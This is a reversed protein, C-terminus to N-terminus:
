KPMRVEELIKLKGFIDPQIYIVPRSALLAKTKLNNDGTLIVSNTVKAIEIIMNDEEKGLEEITNPITLRNDFNLISIVNQYALKRLTEIENSVAKKKNPGLLSDSVNLIYNPIVVEFDKFFGLGVIRSVCKSILINLDPQIRNNLMLFPSVMKDSHGCEKKFELDLEKISADILLSPRRCEVCVIANQLKPFIAALRVANKQDIRLGEILSVERFFKKSFEDIKGQVVLKKEFLTATLSNIKWVGLQYPNTTNREVGGFKSIVSLIKNRDFDKPIGWVITTQDSM